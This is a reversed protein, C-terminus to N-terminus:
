EQIGHDRCYAGYAKQVADFTAADGGNDPHSTSRLRRYIARVEDVTSLASTGLVDSWHAEPPDLAAFGTFARDLIAAGGHREIARMADLTAAIAALNDAVRDYQDIAMCRMPVGDKPSGRWYVAVGQDSPESQNSRPFGDLRLELNSSIVLDDDRIGMRDLVERVRLVAESITLRQSSNGRAKTSFRSTTRQGAGTRKWGSPWALPYAPITM